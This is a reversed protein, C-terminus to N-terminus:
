LLVVIECMLYNENMYFNIDYKKKDQNDTSGNQEEHHFTYLKKDTYISEELYQPKNEEGFIIGDEIQLQDIGIITSANELFNAIYKNIGNAYDLDDIRYKTQYINMKNNIDRVYIMKGKRGNLEVNANLIYTEVANYKIAIKENNAKKIDYKTNKIDELEFVESFDISPLVATNNRNKSNIKLIIIFMLLVAIIIAITIYIKKNNM